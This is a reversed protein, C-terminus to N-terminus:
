ETLGWAALQADSYIYLTGPWLWAAILSLASLSLGIFVGIFTGAAVLKLLKPTYYVIFLYTDLLFSWM